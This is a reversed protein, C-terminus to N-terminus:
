SVPRQKITFSDLLNRMFDIGGRISMHAIIEVVRRPREKVEDVLLRALDNFACCDPNEQIRYKVLTVLTAAWLWSEFEGFNGPLWWRGEEYGNSGSPWFNIFESELTRKAVELSEDSAKRMATRVSECLRAQHERVRKSITIVVWIIALVVALAGVVALGDWLM